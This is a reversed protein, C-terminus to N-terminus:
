GLKATFGVWEYSFMQGNEGKSSRGRKGQPSRRGEVRAALHSHPCVQGSRGQSMLRLDQLAVAQFASVCSLSHGSSSGQGGLGPQGEGAM